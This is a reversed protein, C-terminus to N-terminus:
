KLELSFDDFATRAYYGAGNPSKGAWVALGADGSSFESDTFHAAGIENVEFVIFSDICSMGIARYGEADTKTDLLTQYNPDTLFTWVGKVQKGIYFRDGNIGALYFNDIDQYRCVVGYDETNGPAPQARVNIIVNKLPRPLNDPNTAVLYYDPKKIGMEFFGSSNYSSETNDTSQVMWGSNSNSFDDNFTSAPPGTATAFPQSDVTAPPNTALQPNTAAPLIIAPPLRVPAATAAPAAKRNLNYSAVLAVVALVCCLGAVIVGALGIYFWKSRKSSPAPPPTPPVQPTPPNPPPPPTYALITPDM